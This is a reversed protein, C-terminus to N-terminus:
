GRLRGLRQAKEVAAFVEFRINERLRQMLAAKDQEFGARIFSNPPKTATGFEQVYGKITQDRTRGSVPGIFVTVYTEGRIGKM